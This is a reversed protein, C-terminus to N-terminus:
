RLSSARCRGSGHALSLRRSCASLQGPLMTLRGPEPGLVGRKDHSILCGVVHHHDVAVRTVGSVYQCLDVSRLECRVVSVVVAIVEVTGSIDVASEPMIIITHLTRYRSAIPVEVAFAERRNVFLQLFTLHPQLALLSACHLESVAVTVECVDERVEM